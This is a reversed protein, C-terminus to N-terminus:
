IIGLLNLAFVAGLILFYLLSSAVTLKGSFAYPIAMAAPVAALPLCSLSSGPIALSACMLVFAASIHVMVKRQRTRMGKRNAAFWGIGALALVAVLVACCLALIPSVAPTTPLAAAGGGSLCRWLETFIYWEGSGAGWTIFWAAAFPLVGGAISVILERVSRRYLGMAIPILPLLLIAPAYLLPIVGLYFGGRFAEQFRYEKSFTSIFQKTSLALLLAALYSAAMEPPFAIGCAAAAFVPMPLYNRSTASSYRVTVQIIIYATLAILLFITAAGWGRDASVLRTLADAAPMGQSTLMEVPYPAALYRTGALAAIVAASILALSFHQRAADLKM